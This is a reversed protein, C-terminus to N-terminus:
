DNAGILYATFAGDTYSSIELSFWTLHDNNVRYQRTNNAVSDNNLTVGTDGDIGGAPTNKDYVHLYDWLNDIAQAASFDPADDMVSGQFQFTLSSNLTASVVLTWHRFEDMKIAESVGTATAADFLNFEKFKQRPM